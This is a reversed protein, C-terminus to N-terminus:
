VDLASCDPCLTLIEEVCDDCFIEGCRLCRNGSFFEFKRGCDCTMDDEIMLDDIICEM